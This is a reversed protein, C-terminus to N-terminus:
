RTTTVARGRLGRAPAPLKWRGREMSDHAFLIYGSSMLMAFPILPAPSTLFVLIGLHLGFGVLFGLLRTKPIWLAVALFFEAAISAVSVAPLLSEPIPVWDRLNVGVVEGSLYQPNIKSVATWFYLTTIQAKILFAPWYPVLTGRTRRRSKRKLDFVTYAKHAGSLGMFTALMLMLLLHNSYIQQDALLVLATVAALLLSPLRGAVGLIMGASAALSLGFFTLVVLSPLPTAGDFVPLAMFDGSAVKLMPRFWELALPLSAIGLIIRGIALPRADITQTLLQRM